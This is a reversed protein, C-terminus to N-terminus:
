SSKIIEASISNLEPFHAPSVVQKNPLAVDYFFGGGLNGTEQPLAPGDSLQAGAL